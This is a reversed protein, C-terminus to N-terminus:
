FRAQPKRTVRSRLLTANTLRVAVERNKLARGNIAIDTCCNCTTSRRKVGVLRPSATISKSLIAMSLIYGVLEADVKRSNLFDPLV